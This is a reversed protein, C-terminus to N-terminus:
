EFKFGSTISDDGEEDRSFGLSSEAMEQCDDIFRHYGIRRSDNASQQSPGDQIADPYPCKRRMHRLFAQLERTRVLRLAIEEDRESLPKIAEPPNSPKAM